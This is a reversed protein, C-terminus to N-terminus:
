SRKRWGSSYLALALLLEDNSRVTCCSHGYLTCVREVKTHAHLPPAWDTTPVGSVSASVPVKTSQIVCINIREIRSQKAFAAYLWVAVCGHLRAAVSGILTVMLVNGSLRKLGPTHPRRTQCMQCASKSNSYCLLM